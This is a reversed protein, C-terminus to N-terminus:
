TLLLRQLANWGASAIQITPLQWFVPNNVELSVAGTYRRDRLVRMIADLAVIGDGPMIRDSDDALERCPDGVDAVQVHCLRQPNMRELDVWKSPGLEFHFTDLCIGLYPNDVEEVLATLTGLNTIFSSRPNFEIAATIGFRGATMAIEGLVEIALEVPSEGRGLDDVILDAAVILRPIEFKRLLELRSRFLEWALEKAQVEQRFLGGQLSAAIPRLGAKALWQTVEAVGHRQVTQELKTIWLEIASFGAAAYDKIEDQLSSKLTCVNSICPIM